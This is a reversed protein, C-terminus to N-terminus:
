CLWFLYRSPPENLLVRATRGSERAAMTVVRRRCKGRVGGTERWTASL